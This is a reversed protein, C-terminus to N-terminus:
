MFRSNQKADVVMWGVNIDAFVLEQGPSQAAWLPLQLSRAKWQDARGTHGRRGPDAGARQDTDPQRWPTAAYEGFVPPSYFFLFIPLDLFYSSQFTSNSSFYLIIRHVILPVFNRLLDLFRGSLFLSFADLRLIYVFVFFHLLHLCRFFFFLAASCVSPSGLWLSSWETHWFSAFTFLHWSFSFYDAVLLSAQRSIGSTQKWCANNIHPDNFLSRRGPPVPLFLSLGGGELPTVRM